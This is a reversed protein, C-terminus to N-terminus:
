EQMVFACVCLLLSAIIMTLSKKRGNETEQKVYDDRSFGDYYPQYKKIYIEKELAL